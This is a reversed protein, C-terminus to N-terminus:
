FKGNSGEEGLEPGPREPKRFPGMQVTELEASPVSESSVILVPPRPGQPPDATVCFQGVRAGAKSSRM